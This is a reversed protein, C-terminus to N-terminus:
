LGTESLKIKRFFAEQHNLSLNALAIWILQSTNQTEKYFINLSFNHCNLFYCDSKAVLALIEALTSRM